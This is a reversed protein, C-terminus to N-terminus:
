LWTLCFPIRLLKLQDYNHPYFERRILLHTFDIVQLHGPRYADWNRQKSLDAWLGVDYSIQKFRKCVQAAIGVQPADLFNWIRILAEDPLMDFVNM